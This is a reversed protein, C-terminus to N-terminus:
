SSGPFMGFSQCSFRSWSFMIYLLCFMLIRNSLFDHNLLWLMPDHMLLWSEPVLDLFPFQGLLWFLNLLHFVLVHNLLQRLFNSVLCDEVPRLSCSEVNQVHSLLWFLSHSWCASCPLLSRVILPPFPPKRCAPFPFIFQCNPFPIMTWCGSCLILILFDLCPFVIWCESVLIHSWLFM